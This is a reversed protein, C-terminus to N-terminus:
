HVRGELVRCSFVCSKPMGNERVFDLTLPQETAKPTTTHPADHQAQNPSQSSSSIRQTNIAKHAKVITPQAVVPPEVVAAAVAFDPHQAWALASPLGQPPQAVFFAALLSQQALALASPLGQAPQAAFFAAL